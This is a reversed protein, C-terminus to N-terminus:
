VGLSATGLAAGLLISTGLATGPPPPPPQVYEGSSWGPAIHRFLRWRVNRQELDFIEYRPARGDPVFVRDDSDGDWLRPDDWVRYDDWLRAAM